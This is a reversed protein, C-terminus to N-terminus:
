VEMVAAAALRRETRVPAIWWSIVTEFRRENM